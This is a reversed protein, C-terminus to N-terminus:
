GGDAASRDSQPALRALEADVAENAHRHEVEARHLDDNAEKLRRSAATLRSDLRQLDTVLPGRPVLPRNESVRCDGFHSGSFPSGCHPCDAM